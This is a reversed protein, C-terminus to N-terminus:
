KRANEESQMRSLRSIVDDYIKGLQEPNKSYYRISNDFQIKNIKYKKFIEDYLAITRSSDDASRPQNLRLSAEALNIDVLINVMKGKEIIDGGQNNQKNRCGGTFIILLLVFNLIIYKKNRM